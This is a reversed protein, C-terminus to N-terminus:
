SALERWRKRAPRYRDRIPFQIVTTGRPGPLTHVYGTLAAALAWKLGSATVTAKMQESVPVQTELRQLSPNWRIPHAESYPFAAISISPFGPIPKEHNEVAGANLACRALQAAYRVKYPVNSDWNTQIHEALGCRGQYSSASGNIRTPTIDKGALAYIGCSERLATSTGYFSKATNIRFFADNQDLLADCVANPAIIDDGYVDTVWRRLGYRWSIASTYAAFVLSEVVFTTANGMGAYIHLQHVSSGDACANSRTRSLLCSVWPPMVADVLEATINDSADSLDITGEELTASARLALERQSQAGDTYLVDLASGRLPGAHISEYITTRVAQQLFSRALPEVTILRDKNWDKPVACLRCVDRAFLIDDDQYLLLDDSKESNTDSGVSDTLYPTLVEWRRAHSCREAVSGPGFHGPSVGVDPLWRKLLERMKDITHSSPLPISAARENRELFGAIARDKRERALKRDAFRWKKWAVAQFLTLPAQEQFRSLESGVSRVLGTSNESTWTLIGQISQLATEPFPDVLSNSACSFATLWDSETMCLGNEHIDRHM